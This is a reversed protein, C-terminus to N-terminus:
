TLDISTIECGRVVPGYWAIDPASGRRRGDTATQALGNVRGGRQVLASDFTVGM